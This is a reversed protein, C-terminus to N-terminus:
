LLTRLVTAIARLKKWLMMRREDMAFSLETGSLTDKKVVYQADIQLFLIVIIIFIKILNNM